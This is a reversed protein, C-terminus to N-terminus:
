QFYKLTLAGDHRATKNLFLPGPTYYEGKFSFINSIIEDHKYSFCTQFAYTHIYMIIQISTYSKLSVRVYIVCTLVNPVLQNLCGLLAFLGYAFFKTVFRAFSSPVSNILNLFM